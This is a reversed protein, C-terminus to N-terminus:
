GTRQRYAAQLSLPLTEDYFIVSQEILPLCRAIDTGSFQHYQLILWGVDKEDSGPNIVLYSRKWFDSWWKLNKKWADQNERPSVEILEQMAADWIDQKEVQDTHLCVRIRHSRTPTKSVYRFGHFPCGAYKSNTEGALSFGDGILAGGWVLNELPDVMKHRVPELEQQKVQFSFCDKENDM